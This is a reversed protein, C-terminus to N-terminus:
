GSMVSMISCEPLRTAMSSKKLFVKFFCKLFSIQGRKTLVMGAPRAPKSKSSLISARKLEGLNRKRDKEVVVTRNSRKLLSFHFFVLRSLIFEFFAKLIPRKWARAKIGPIDREALVINALLSIPKFGSVLKEKAKRIAIGAMKPLM